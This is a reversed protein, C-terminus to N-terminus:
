GPTLHDDIPHPTSTRVRPFVELIEPDEEALKRAKAIIEAKERRAAEERERKANEEDAKRQREQEVVFRMHEEAQRLAEEEAKARELEMEKATRISEDVFEQLVEIRDLFIRALDPDVARLKRIM